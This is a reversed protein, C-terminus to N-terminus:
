PQQEEESLVGSYPPPFDPVEGDSGDDGEHAAMPVLAMEVTVEPGDGILIDATDILMPMGGLRVPALVDLDHLRDKGIRAKVNIRRDARRLMRDFDKWFKAYHGMRFQFFLSIDHIRDGEVCSAYWHEFRYASLLGETYGYSPNDDYVMGFMFSLPCESDTEKESGMTATHRHRAGVTFMPGFYGWESGDGFSHWRLYGVPCCTDSSALDMPECGEPQPDWTFFSSSKDWNRSGKLDRRWLTATVGNWDPYWLPVQRRSKRDIPWFEQEPGIGDPIGPMAPDEPVEPLGSGLLSYDPVYDELRDTFPAARELSTEASLRVYLPTRFESDPDQTLLGDIDLSPEMGAIERILRVHAVGSDFDTRYVLGFRVFLSHMFEEVTCDPMLEAYDLTCACVADATNNLVVLRALEADERFPNRDMRLGLDSFVAELIRWVRVFPTCGYGNPVSIMAESGDIVRMITHEKVGAPLFIDGDEQFDNVLEYYKEDKQPEGKLKKSVDEEAICVRFIALDDVQPDVGAYIRRMEKAVADMDRFQRCPLPEVESLHRSNWADYARSNDFGISVSIGDDAASDTNLIGTRMYAGSIVTCGVSTSAHSGSADPRRPFGLIRRNRLTDPLSVAISQSGIDNFIPSTEEISLTFGKPLDIDEGAVTIRIM